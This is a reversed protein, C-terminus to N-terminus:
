VSGVFGSMWRQGIFGGATRLGVGNPADANSWFADFAHTEAPDFFENLPFPLRPNPLGGTQTAWAPAGEGGFVSSYADQHM